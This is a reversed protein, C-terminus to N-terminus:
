FIRSLGRGGERDKGKPSFSPNEGRDRPVGSYISEKKKKQSYSIAGRKSGQRGIFLAARKKKL